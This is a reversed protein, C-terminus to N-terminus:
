IKIIPVFQRKEIKYLKGGITIESGENLDMLNVIDEEITHLSGKNKRVMDLYVTNIGVSTGCLILRIPKGVDSLLSLDRPTAFNDGIMIIEECDPCNEIGKLVAEINNEPTDGGNSSSM